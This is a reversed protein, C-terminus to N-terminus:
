AFLETTFREVHIASGKGPRAVAPNMLRRGMPPEKKSHPETVWKMVIGGYHSPRALKAMTFQIKKQVLATIVVSHLPQAM